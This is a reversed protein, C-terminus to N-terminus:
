RHRRDWSKFRKKCYAELSEADNFYLEAADPIPEDYECDDASHDRCTLPRRDYITCKGEKDLNVCPNYIMLFWGDADKFAHVNEHYLRWLLNDFDLISRPTSLEVSVYRCCASGCVICKELSGKLKKGKKGM